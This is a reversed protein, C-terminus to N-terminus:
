RGVRGLKHWTAGRFSREVSPVNVECEFSLLLRMWCKVQGVYVCAWDYNAMPKLDITLPLAIDDEEPAEFILQQDETTDIVTVRFLLLEGDFVEMTVTDGNQVRRITLRPVFGNVLLGVLAEMQIGDEEEKQPEPLKAQFEGFPRFGKWGNWVDSGDM